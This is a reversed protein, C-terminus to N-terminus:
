YFPVQHPGGIGSGAKGEFYWPNHATSLLRHRTEKYVPDDKSVYGLYPLSLLSPINADDMFNVSGFGDLEYAFYPKGVRPHVIGDAQIAADIEAALTKAETALTRNFHPLLENAMRTLHVVAFANAPLNYPYITADDSARFYSKSMGNRRNPVGRGQNM